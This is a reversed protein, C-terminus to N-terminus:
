PVFTYHKEFFIKLLSILFQFVVNDVYHLQFHYLFRSRSYYNLVIYM